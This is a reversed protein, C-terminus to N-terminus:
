SVLLKQVGWAAMREQDPLAENSLPTSTTYWLHTGDFAGTHILKAVNIQEGRMGLYTLAPVDIYGRHVNTDVDAKHIRVALVDPRQQQDLIWMHSGDFILAHSTPFLEEAGQSELALTHVNLKKVGAWSGARPFPNGAGSSRTTVWLHSGDFALYWPLSDIQVVDEDPPDFVLRGALDTPKRLRVLRAPALTPAGGGPSPPPPPPPELGIWMHTGDFALGTPSAGLPVVALRHTKVDILFVAKGQYDAVWIFDGDFAIGYPFLGLDISGTSRDLTDVYLVKRALPATFWVRRGDYAGCAASSRWTGPEEDPLIPTVEAVDEATATQVIRAIGGIGGVWVARGDFVVAPSPTALPLIFHRYFYNRGDRYRLKPLTHALLPVFQRRDQRRTAIAERNAEVQEDLHTLDRRVDLIRRVAGDFASVVALATHKPPLSGAPVVRVAGTDDVLVAQEAYNNAVPIEDDGIEFRCGGVYAVGRAYRVRLPNPTLSVELGLTGKADRIVGDSRLDDLFDHCPGGDTRRCLIDIAEQVTRVGEWDATGRREICPGPDFAVEAATSLTATFLVSTPGARPLAPEDTLKAEVEQYQVSTGPHWSVSAIGKADTDVTISTETPGNLTGGGSVVTFRVARGAVRGCGSAALVRLPELAGVNQPMVEQGDGSVRYLGTQSALRGIALQVTNQGALGECAGPDYAVQSAVSLSANFLVPLQVPIGQELLCAEVLQHQNDGDLSWWCRALGDPAVVVDVATASGAGGETASLRGAGATVRFRVVLPRESCHANAVGVVLPLGLPIREGAVLPDPMAEQGAGSVYELANVETLPAFLCRCDEASTIDTGDWRLVALRCYHHCIGLSPRAEPQGASDRPWEVSGSQEEATATRAPIMWHDGTRYRGAGFAVQVGAEVTVWAVGGGAPGTKVAGAGDWRRLRLGAPFGPAGPALNGPWPAPATYLTVRRRGRDVAEIRALVGPEGRLERAEDLIEVWQGSAFGLVEDRGVDEVTVETGQIAEIRSVVIGNDRSWKYTAGVRRLRPQRNLDIAPFPTNLTLTRGDTATIQALLGQTPDEGAGTFFIEVSEGVINNWAGATVRVTRAAPAAADITFVGAGGALNYAEGARHVEARYLQNELGRYGASPPIICPDPTAAEFAARARLNGTSPATAADYAAVDNPCGTATAGAFVTRVQWVTRTRTATDAGGLATERLSRVELATLHRQWVDLYVIYYGTRPRPDPPPASPDLAAGPLDPQRLFPVPYESECLIGDVYYRGPTLIFDGPEYPYGPFRQNFQAALAGLEGPALLIRFAAGHLPAGCGGVADVTGTEARHRTLDAQENWDADLQVRGQQMRVGTYHRAPDFTHRSFDGKM